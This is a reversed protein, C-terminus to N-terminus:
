RPSATSWTMRMAEAWAPGWSGDPPVHATAAGGLQFPVITEPEEHAVVMLMTRAYDRGLTQFAGLMHEDPIGTVLVLAGGAVGRQHIRAVSQRLDLAAFPKIAALREMILEYRSASPATAEGSWMSPAFGGLFFHHLISATGRVAQEFAAPSEYPGPRPDFIILARSQWPVELQRIMLEDRKATSPWHVRRLDDGLRYERLTFFDEGGHPAFSPRASQVSPDYGRVIPYGELQQIQPFVVLRDIKKGEAHAAAMGLPDSIVLRAPGIQYVGRPRCLIEYHATVTTGRMARATAFRATGLGRVEDEIIMPPMPSRAYLEIEVRARDGDYLLVPTVRRLLTADPKARWVLVSGVVVSAALFFGVALLELEGFAIWLIGLAAAAGLAAWGRTTIM